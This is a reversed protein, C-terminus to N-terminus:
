EATLGTLAEFIPLEYSPFYIGWLEGQHELELIHYPKIHICDYQDVTLKYKKYEGKNPPVDKNWSPIAISKKITKIAKLTSLPFQYKGDMNALYLNEEDKYINFILNYYPTIEPFKEVVKLKDNNMKYRFSLVDVEKSEEVPVGLEFLINRSITEMKSATYAGQSESIEKAKRNGMIFLICWVVAGIGATWFLFGANQYAKAFTLGDEGAIVEVVMILGVAACFGSIFRIIRLYLPLKAEEAVELVEEFTNEWSEAMDQAPTQKLFQNGDFEENNKNTTVNRGMFPIM